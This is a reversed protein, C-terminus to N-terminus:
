KLLGKEELIKEAICIDLPRTIKLNNYEGEILFVEENIAEVVSAEDTFYPQYVQKFAPLLIASKFTQPTQIIRVKDRDIIQHTIGEAIRISDTAAVAPIASGKEITQEFCRKILDQSVLCRVGDHVFVISEEKVLELGNKVSQFRTEGGATINIRKGAGLQAVIEEGKEIHEKPLVLVIELDDYAELFSKITYYLVPKNNLLLFQKPIAAGMRQGSGGAVIIAYKKM